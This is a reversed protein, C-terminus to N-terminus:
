AYSKNRMIFLGLSTLISPIEDQTPITITPDISLLNNFISEDFIQDIHHNHKALEIGLQSHRFQAGKNYKYLNLLAMTSATIIILNLQNRIALLQYQFLLERKMGAVYFTSQGNHTPYLYVYDWILNNRNPISFQQPLPSANEVPIFQEFVTPGNLCFLAFPNTIQNKALFQQIYSSIRSPNFILLHELELNDLETTQYAKLHYPKQKKTYEFLCCSLYQPSFSITVFNKSCSQIPWM